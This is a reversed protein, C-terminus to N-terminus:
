PGVYSTNGEDHCRLREAGAVRKGEWVGDTAILLGLMAFNEASTVM